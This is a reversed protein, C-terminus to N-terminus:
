KGYTKDYKKIRMVSQEGASIRARVILSFDKNGFEKGLDAIHKTFYYIAASTGLTGYGGLLFAKTGTAQPNTSKIILGYGYVNPQERPIITGNDKDYIDNEDMSYGVHEMMEYYDMCKKAQAGLVVINTTWQDYGKSMEILSLNDRKGLEGLLNWLMAAGRAEVEPWVKDINPHAQLTSGEKSLLKPSKTTNNPVILDKLYINVQNKNQLLPGLVKTAPRNYQYWHIITKGFSLFIKISDIILSPDFM